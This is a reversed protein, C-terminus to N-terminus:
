ALPSRRAFTGSAAHSRLLRRHREREADVAARDRGHDLRAQMQGIEQALVQVERSRMQSTLVPDAPGTRKEEVALRDARAQGKGAGAAAGVDGRDLAEILILDRDFQARGEVPFVRHLASKARRPHEYGSAM